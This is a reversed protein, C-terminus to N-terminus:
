AGVKGNPADGSEVDLGRWGTRQRRWWLYLGSILVTIAVLDFLAWVIKLPLGGYDGFHLPQSLFLAKAYWPMAPRDTIRGTEADILVATLMRSTVPTDGRLYVGFHHPTSFPAGPFFVSAITMGPEANRAEALVSDISALHSPPPANRYPAAMQQISQRVSAAIPDHLTNIMGTLGVVALWALTAIGLLNHLDLWKVRASRDKRVTGFSLKRMFPAYLVTGSVLAAILLFGMVGLFLTGPLGALLKTHLELTWYLFGSSKPPPLNIAQGTRLDFVQRDQEPFPTATTAGTQVVVAPATDVFGLSVPVTGPHAALAHSVIADLRAMQAPTVDSETHTPALAQDIEASFILPLGSVCLVLLFVTSILSTWKHILFWTRITAQTM